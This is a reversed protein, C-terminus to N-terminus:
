GFEPLPPIPTPTDIPLRMAAKLMDGDLVIKDLHDRLGACHLSVLFEVMTNIRGAEMDRRIEQSLDKIM